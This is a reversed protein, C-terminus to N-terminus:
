LGIKFYRVHSANYEAHYLNVFGEASPNKDTVFATPPNRLIGSEPSLLGNV